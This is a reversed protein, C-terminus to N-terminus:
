LAVPKQVSVLKRLCQQCTCGPGAPWGLLDAPLRAQYSLSVNWSRSGKEVRIKFRKSQLEGFRHSPLPGTNLLPKTPSKTRLESHDCESHHPQRNPESAWKTVDLQTVRHSANLKLRAYFSHSLQEEQKVPENWIWVLFFEFPWLSYLM